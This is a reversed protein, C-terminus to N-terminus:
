GVRAQSEMSALTDAIPGFRFESFLRDLRRWVNGRGGFLRLQVLRPLLFDQPCEQDLEWPHIYFTGPM